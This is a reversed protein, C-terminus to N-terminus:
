RKKEEYRRKNKKEENKAETIKGKLKTNEKEQEDHRNRWNGIGTIVGRDKTIADRIGKNKFGLVGGVQKNRNKFTQSKAGKRKKVSYKGM